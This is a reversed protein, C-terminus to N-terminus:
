SFFSSIDKTDTKSMDIYKQFLLKEVIKNKIQEEKRKFGDYPLTKRATEIESKIRLKMNRKKEMGPLDFLVLSFIQIVPKMIQNTIYHNYDLKLNNERIFSPTEIKDGQLKPKIKPIIFAYPIRDGPVPKNGPDRQGIRDALVKHAIQNPNKYGSRLSKTILFKDFLSNGNLINSLSNDLFDLSKQINKDKMLIDIIGGYIDKVIPANDRRKLVIGMSKSKCKNVDTEYLMGVYRKKSLLCFPMFTKEYELDHPSKLFKTALEGAEQALEITIALADKGSITENTDFNKLNFTFFVSDTDGYIYEANTRVKGFHKTECIANGYVGEILNKAYILLKRGTATTCAAVDKEYFASTKAGCQGYLSNATLKISLQRKDLINKMFPDTEKGMQKKTAKRSQLLEQLVAPMIAMGDNAKAFRCTKTGTKIKQAAAKPTKREYKYTDYTVDVYSYNPLNDYLFNGTDCQVGTQEILEGDLNYEKTWVKSSHCLNESIMSSPYLSGYDVCAVPNDLYLNCKPELVIAGEYGEDNGMASKLTPMLTNKEKCKKAIFSTLKIGQGRLVLFSIPVSCLNAMEILGTLIDIKNLLSHVLNCDQICYKAIIARDADSGNTLEFIDKPTVDDKALCWRLKKCENFVIPQDITFYEENININIVKYKQGNNVYENTHGIEQFHVFANESLGFLNKSYIKFTDHTDEKSTKYITDGIFYGAVNDLKYSELNYDRRFSNYLDIQIRGPINIFKLNHQGSALISVSEQIKYEYKDKTGCIENTNRSLKLFKPVCNLECARRFMFEYDFGFINYGIIIDPDEKQILKTWELLVDRETKCCIIESNEIERLENCNNLVICNNKYINNTGMDMFTSGIFTVTDGKLSPLYNTFIQNILTAKDEKPIKKDNIFSIIDNNYNIQSKSRATYDENDSDDPIDFMNEISNNVQVDCLNNINLIKDVSLSISDFTVSSKPYVINIDEFHKNIVCFASFLIDKFIIKNIIYKNSYDIIENSLKNYNKIPLPFDGHSSSAEIDFSCIKYPVAVDSEISIIDNMSVCVEVNCSTIKSKVIETNQDDFQIWGSPNISREHFFRLLPPIHAEYLLLSAGKYKIGGQKITRNEGTTYWLYKLANFERNSNTFLKIFKYEKGGDFGYLKKHQVVESKLISAHKYSLQKNLYDIFLRVDKNNWKNPIKAFMYPRYDKVLISYTNRREDIGFLQINFVYSKESSDYDDDSSHDDRINDYSENLVEDTTKFDILKCKM